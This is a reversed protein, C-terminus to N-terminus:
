RGVEHNVLNLADLDHLRAVSAVGNEDHDHLEVWMDILATAPIWQGEPFSVLDMYCDKVKVNNDLVELSQHLCNRLATNLEVISGGKSLELVTNEWGVALQGCLSRGVVTLALPNGKCAKM